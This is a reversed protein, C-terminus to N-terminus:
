ILRIYSNVLEEVSRSFEQREGSLLREYNRENISSNGLNRAFFNASNIFSDLQGFSVQPLSLLLFFFAFPM